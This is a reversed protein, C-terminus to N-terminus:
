SKIFFNKFQFLIKLFTFYKSALSQKKQSLDM